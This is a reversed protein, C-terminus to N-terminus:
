YLITKKQIDTVERQQKGFGQPQEVFHQIGQYEILAVIKDNKTLAFDFRLPYNKDSKLDDFKHQTIFKVDM